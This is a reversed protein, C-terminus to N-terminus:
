TRICPTKSYKTPICGNLNGCTFDLSLRGAKKKWYTKSNNKDHDPAVHVPARQDKKYIYAIYSCPSLM